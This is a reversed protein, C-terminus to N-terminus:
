VSAWSGGRGCMGECPLDGLSGDPLRRSGDGRETEVTEPRLAVLSSVSSERIPYEDDTAGEDTDERLTGNGSESGAAM